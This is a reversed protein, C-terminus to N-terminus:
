SSQSLYKVMNEKLWSNERSILQEQHLEIVCSSFKDRHM